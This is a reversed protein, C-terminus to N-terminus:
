SAVAMQAAERKLRATRVSTHDCGWFRAIGAGSFGCDAQLRAWVAHRARVIRAERCRGCVEDITAFHERATETALELLGRNQLSAVLARIRIPEDLKRPRQTTMGM